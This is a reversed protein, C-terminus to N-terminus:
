YIFNNKRQIECGLNKRKMSGQTRKNINKGKTLRM